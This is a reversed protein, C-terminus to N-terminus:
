VGGTGPVIPDPLALKPAGDDQLVKWAEEDLFTPIAEYGWAVVGTELPRRGGPDDEAM